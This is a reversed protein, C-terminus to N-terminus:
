ANLQAMCPAFFACGLISDLLACGKDKKTTVVTTGVMDFLSSIDKVRMGENFRELMALKTQLTIMKQGKKDGGENPNRGYKPPM